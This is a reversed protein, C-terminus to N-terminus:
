ILLTVIGSEVRAEVSVNISRVAERHLGINVIFSILPYNFIVGILIYILHNCKCDLFWKRAPVSVHSQNCELASIQNQEHSPLLVQRNEKWSLHSLPGSSCPVYLGSDWLGALPFCMMYHRRQGGWGMKGKFGKKKLEPLWDALFALNRECIFFSPRLSLIDSGVLNSVWLADTGELDGCWCPNAGQFGKRWYWKGVRNWQM